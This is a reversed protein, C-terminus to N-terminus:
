RRRAFEIKIRYTSTCTELVVVVPRTVLSFYFWTARASRDSAFNPHELWDPRLLYPFKHM